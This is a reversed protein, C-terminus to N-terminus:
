LTPLLAWTASGAAQLAGRCRGARCPAAVDVAAVGARTFAAPEAARGPRLQGATGIRRAAAAFRAWLTGGSRGAGAAGVDIMIMARATREARAAGVTAGAFLIAVITPHIARPRLQRAIEIVVAAGPTGARAGIVVRDAAARGAITAEAYGPAPRAHPLRAARVDIRAAAAADFRPSSDSDVFPLTRTAVLVLFVTGVVLQGGLVAGLARARM